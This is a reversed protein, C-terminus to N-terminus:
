FLCTQLCACSQALRCCLLPLRLRELSDVLNKRALVGGLRRVLCASAEALELIRVLPTFGELELWLRRGMLRLRGRQLSRSVQLNVSKVFELGFNRHRGLLRDEALCLGDAHDWGGM